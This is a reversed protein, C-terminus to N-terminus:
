PCINVIKPTRKPSCLSTKYPRRGRLIYVNEAPQEAQGVHGRPPTGLFPVDVCRVSAAPFQLLFRRTPCEPLLGPPSPPAM